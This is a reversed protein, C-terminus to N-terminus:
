VVLVENLEDLLGPLANGFLRRAALICGEDYFYDNLDDPTVWLDVGVHAAIEDLWRRKRGRRCSTSGM